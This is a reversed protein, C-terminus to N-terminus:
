GKACYAFATLDGAGQSGNRASVRWARASTHESGRLLIFARSHTVDAKYGGFALREGGACTAKVRGRGDPDVNVTEEVTTTRPAHMSCYAIATLPAEGTFNFAGV